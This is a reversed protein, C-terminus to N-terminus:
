NLDSPKLVDMDEVVKISEKDMGSLVQLAKMFLVKLKQQTIKRMAKMYTPWNNAIFFDDKTQLLEVLYFTMGSESNDISPSYEFTYDQNIAVHPPIAGLNQDLHNLIQINIPQTPDVVFRIGPPNQNHSLIRFVGKEDKAVPIIVAYPTKCKILLSM